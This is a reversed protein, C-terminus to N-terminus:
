TTKALPSLIKAEATPDNTWFVGRSVGVKVFVNEEKLAIGQEEIWECAMWHDNVAKWMPPPDPCSWDLGVRFQNVMKVKEPNIKALWDKWSNPAFASSYHFVNQGYYIPLGEKRVNQCTRLLSPESAGVVMRYACLVAAGDRRDPNKGWTGMDIPKDEILALEFIRNRLEAPLKLLLCADRPQDEAM